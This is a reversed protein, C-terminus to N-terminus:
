LSSKERQEISRAATRAAFVLAQDGSNLAANILPIDSIDGLEGLAYIASRTTPEGTRAIARILNTVSSLKREVALGICTTQFTNECNKLALGARIASDILANDVQIGDESLRHLQLLATGGLPGRDSSVYAELLQVTTARVDADGLNVLHQIAYQRWRLGEETDNAMSTFLARLVHPDVRDQNVLSSALLNRTLDSLSKRQVARIVERLETESMGHNPTLRLGYLTWGEDAEADMATTATGGCCPEVFDKVSITVNVLDIRPQKSEFQESARLHETRSVQDQAELHGSSQFNRYQLFIGSIAFAILGVAVLYQSRRNRLM